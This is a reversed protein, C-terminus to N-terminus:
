EREWPVDSADFSWMDPNERLWDVYVEVAEEITYEPEWGLDERIRSTDSPPLAELADQGRRDSMEFEADPVHARVYDAVDALSAQEGTGVIYRNYSPADALAAAIFGSAEDGVYIIEIPEEVNPVTIPTGSVAAKVIYADEVNGRVRDPGLGHMPEIAVFEVGREAEYKTGIREVAYKTLGYMNRPEQHATEDMTEQDMSVNGYAAVSSAAVVREVDLADAAELVNITGDVNVSFARRPSRNSARGLLSALHIIRQPEFDAVANYVDVADTVDSKYFEYDDAVVGAYPSPDIIDFNAVEHDGEVLQRVVHSGIFGHGGTVLIRM